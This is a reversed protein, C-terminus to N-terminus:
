DINIFLPITGRAEDVPGAVRGVTVMAGGDGARQMEGSAAITLKDGIQWDTALALSSVNVTPALGGTIIVLYSEPAIEGPVPAFDFAQEGDELDVTMTVIAELAVGIVGARNTADLKAVALMPQGNEPSPSVGVMAVLDGPAIATQGRNVVLSQSRATRDTVSQTSIGNQGGFYADYYGSDGRVYMGRYNSSYIRAGYGQDSSSGTGRAYLGKGGEFYGGENYFSFSNSTDGRGYVGVGRNSQGYVGPALINPHSRDGNSYGYVGIGNTSYFYGAYGRNANSGGDFGYIAYGDETQGYIARGDRALGFVANGTTSQGSIAGRNFAFSDNNMQVDLLYNNPLANATGKVIAGPRLTHAIPVPSIEQRPTLTEGDVVQSLWLEEGNFIDTEIPLRVVFLGKQVEVSLDGSDWLASGAVPDNFIVFRMTFTGNLAKDDAGTLYGQYTIADGITAGPADTSRVTNAGVLGPWYAGLGGLLLLAAAAVFVKSLLGVPKM